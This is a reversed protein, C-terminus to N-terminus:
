SAFSPVNEYFSALLYEYLKNALVDFHICYIRNFLSRTLAYETETQQTM